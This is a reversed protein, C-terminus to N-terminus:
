RAVKLDPLSSWTRTQLRYLEASKVYDYSKTLGGLVAILKEDKAFCLSPFVYNNSRPPLQTAVFKNNELTLM